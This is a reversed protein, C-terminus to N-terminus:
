RNRTTGPVSLKFYGGKPRVSYLVAAMDLTPADYPMPKCARYAEVVPHPATSWAFDKDISAAPYLLAQGIEAGIAVVPGPWEAFLKRAAKIDTKLDDDSTTVTLYRVKKSILDKMGPLELATVVNSAPGCLMVISNQDQQSTLANRIM